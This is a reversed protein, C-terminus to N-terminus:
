ATWTSGMRRRLGAAEPTLAYRCLDAGVAHELLAQLARPGPQETAQFFAADLGRMEDVTALLDGTVLYAARLEARTLANVFADVPMPRGQPASIHPALEELLKKQRRTIARAVTPEYQAVIKSQFADVEDAAYLPVAQRAAAILLGEIHPPPLEALWPVGFAIRAIARALAAIQVPEPLETLSRPVVV